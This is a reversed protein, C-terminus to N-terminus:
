ATNKMDIRLTKPQVTMAALHDNGLWFEEINGFGAQYDAWNRYFDATGNVRRQFVTWGGGDTTM